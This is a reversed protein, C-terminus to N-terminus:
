FMVISMRFINYFQRPLGFCEEMWEIGYQQPVRYESKNFYLGQINEGLQGITAAHKSFKAFFHFNNYAEKVLEEMGGDM